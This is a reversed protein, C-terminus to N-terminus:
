SGGARGLIARAAAALVSLSLVGWAAMAIGLAVGHTLDAADGAPVLLRQLSAVILLAVVNAAFVGLLAVM